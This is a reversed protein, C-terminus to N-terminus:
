FASIVLLVVIMGVFALPNTVSASALVGGCKVKSCETALKKVSEAVPPMEGCAINQLTKLSADIFDGSAEDKIEKITDAICFGKEAMDCIRILEDCRENLERLSDDDSGVKVANCSGTIDDDTTVDSPPITCTLSSCIHNARERIGSVEAFGDLASYCIEEIMQQVADLSGDLLGSCFMELVPNSNCVVTRLTDSLYGCMSDTLKEEISQVILSCGACKSNTYVGTKNTNEKVNKVFSFM